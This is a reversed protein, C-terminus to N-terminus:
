APVFRTIIIRVWPCHDRGSEDIAVLKLLRVGDAHSVNAAIVAGEDETLDAAFQKRETFRDPEVGVSNALRNNLEQRWARRSRNRAPLRAAADIRSQHLARHTA